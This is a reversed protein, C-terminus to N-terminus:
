IDTVVEVLKCWKVGFGMKKMINLLYRWNISDYAKEFDVKFILGKEKTKKLFEMTENGILVGDLIYRGKILGNQVDGVVNGVVKKDSEALMNAIIKYYCGILSIPRFDGLGIPDTVKSIITVFSSNCGRSIEM